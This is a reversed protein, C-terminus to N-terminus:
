ALTACQWPEVDGSQLLAVVIRLDEPQLKGSGIMPIADNKLKLSQLAARVCDRAKRPDRHDTGAILGGFVQRNAPEPRAESMGLARIFLEVPDGVLEALRRAFAFLSKSDSTVLRDLASGLMTADRVITDALRCAEGVAYDYDHSDPNGPSFDADPSHFRGQGSHTFLRVLDVPDTPMLQDFFARVKDAIEKPAHRRDFYLWNNVGLIGATWIGVHAVIRDIMEKVDEFPIENLLGRIHSALVARARGAFEDDSIGIDALRRIAARRFNWIEGHTEPTWDQLRESGIEDAGGVRTFHGSLLLRGGDDGVEHCQWSGL